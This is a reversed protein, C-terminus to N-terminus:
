SSASIKRWYAAFEIPVRAAVDLRLVCCDGICNHPTVRDDHLLEDPLVDIERCLGRQRCPAVEVRRLSGVRNPGSPGRCRPRVAMTSADDCRRPYTHTSARAAVGSRQLPATKPM